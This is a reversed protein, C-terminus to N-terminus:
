LPDEDQMGDGEVLSDYFYSVRDVYKEDGGVYAQLAEAVDGHAADIKNMLETAGALIQDAPDDLNVDPLGNEAATEKSVQMLGKDVRGKQEPNNSAANPDGRSEAWIVAAILNPDLGTKRAAEEIEAKYRQVAAPASPDLKFDHEDEAPPAGDHSAHHDYDPSSNYGRVNM